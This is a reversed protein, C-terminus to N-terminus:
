LAWSGLEYFDFGGTRGGLCRALFDETQRYYHLRDPWRHLGHGANPYLFFDVQKGAKRLAEVFHQSQAVPVRVDRAGHFILMPGQVNNVFNIPSKGNLISREQANAPNGAYKFWMPKGFEWYAPASELLNPLDSVGFLSIGCKFVEPSATMGVMTAYGGFSAGMIAVNAPDTIGLRTLYDIGDLLDLQMKAGFEGVAAETFARGYGTSGRYNVQLVAYGRNALFIPMPDHDYIVNRTWPGGHVYVVTPLNKIAQANPTTLYGHLLLGDRSTFQIPHEAPSAGREAIRSRFQFGLVLWEDTSQNYLLTKAEKDSTTTITLIKEDRSRSTVEVSAHSQDLQVKEIVRKLAPDFFHWEQYNPNVVVALPEHTMRSLIAQSVDVRPDAYVVSEKGTRLDIKVLALKDRNRNSLAWLSQKDQSLDLPEVKDFYNVSFRYTWSTNNEDDSTEFRWEEDNKRARGVIRGSKDTLWLAVDGPNQALLKLEGSLHVYRYLDFIKADRQNSGIILDTSDQIQSQVFSKSGVGPTLIKLQADPDATNLEFIHANEDGNDLHFIVHQSDQAWVGVDPMAYSHIEGTTLDKVFLGHGLGQRAGWLVHKGDPSIQYGGNGNWDAVFQRVPLLPPLEVGEKAVRQLSPHVPANSCGLLTSIVLTLSVGFLNFISKMQKAPSHLTLSFSVLTAVGM